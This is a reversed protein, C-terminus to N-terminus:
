DKTELDKKIEHWRQWRGGKGPEVPDVEIKKILNGLQELEEDSLNKFLKSMREFHFERMAAFKRRAKDTLKIRVVRRDKPEEFREVLGKEVLKDVFQTVAGPTINMKDSLEGVTVGEDSNAMKMMLMLHPMGFGHKKFMPGHGHQFSGKIHGMQQLLEQILQQRKDSM